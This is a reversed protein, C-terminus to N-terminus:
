SALGTYTGHNVIKTVISGWQPMWDSGLISSHGSSVWNYDVEMELVLIRNQEDFHGYSCYNPDGTNKIDAIIAEIQEGNKLYITVYDFMKGFTPALAVLYKGDYSAIHNTFTSGASLWKQYLTYQNTGDTWPINNYCTYSVGTSQSYGTTPEKEQLIYTTGSSSSTSVEVRAKVESLSPVNTYSGVKSPTEGKVFWSYLANAVALSETRASTGAYATKSGMFAKMWIVYASEIDTLKKFDDYPTGYVKFAYLLYQEGTQYNDYKSDANSNLAVELTFDMQTVTSYPDKGTDEIYDLYPALRTKGDGYYSRGNLQFLGFDLARKYDDGSGHKNTDYPIYPSITYNIPLISSDKPLNVIAPYWGGSEYWSSGLVACAAEPTYGADIFRRYMYYVVDSWVSDDVTYTGDGTGTSDTTVTTTKYNPHFFTPLKGNIACTKINRTKSAVSTNCSGSGPSTNGEITIACCGEEDMGIVIGIHQNKWLIIDGPQPTYNDGGAPYYHEFGLDMMYKYWYTGEDGCAMVSGNKSLNGFTYGEYEEGFGGLGAEV